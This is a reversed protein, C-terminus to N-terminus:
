IVIKDCVLLLTQTHMNTHTHTNIHIRAYTQHTHYTCAYTSDEHSAVDVGVLKAEIGIIITKSRIASALASVSM